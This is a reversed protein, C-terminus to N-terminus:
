STPLSFGYKNNLYTHVTGWRDSDGKVASYFIIESVWGRLYKANTATRGLLPATSWGVTNVLTSFFDNGSTAGNIRQIWSGLASEVECVHWGALSSDPNKTTKRTNTAFDNYIISDSNFNYYADGAGWDGCPPAAADSVNPPDNVLKCVWWVHGATFGTLFNPLTFHGGDGAADIFLVAPYSNPGGTQIWRPKKNTRLVGTANCGNGSSDHWTSIEDNNAFGTFSTSNNAKLWFELGTLDSPSAGSPDGPPGGATVDGAGSLIIM